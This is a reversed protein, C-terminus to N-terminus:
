HHHKQYKDMIKQADDLDRHQKNGTNLLPTVPSAINFKDGRYFKIYQQQDVADVVARRLEPHKKFTGHKINTLLFVSESGMKRKITLNDDSKI